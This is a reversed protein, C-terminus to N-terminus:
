ENSLYLESTINSEQKGPGTSENASLPDNANNGVPEAQAYLLLDEEELEDMRVALRQAMPVNIEQSKLQTARTRAHIENLKARELDAGLDQEYFTFKVNRPLVGRYTFIDRITKMFLAPGKGRSKRHLVESQASSGLNGGPLPAFDQYDGGFGLAITAIYWKLEIDLDFGDPLSALPIEVHSVSKEPDLSALIMPMIFRTLGQNDAKEQDQNQIDNLDSKSVGGVVHIARAFRGSVKEGKYVALDKLIQAYRLVRSVSCLGIGRMTEIPSPLDSFSIVQFWALKHPTGKIDTYIVPFSPDGTRLCRAADLNGIGIVPDFPTSGNRIIEIFGGNDQSVFDLSFRTIFPIWGQEQGAISSNLMNTVATQLRDNEAEVKWEFAANRMAVSGVASALLDETPYFKRLEDDRKAPYTGWPTVQEAVSGIYLTFTNPSGWTSNADQFQVASRRIAEDPFPSTVKPM